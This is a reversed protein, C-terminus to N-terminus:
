ASDSVNPVKGMEAMVTATMTKILDSPILRLTKEDIPLPKDDEDSINWSKIIQLLGNIVAESEGTQMAEAVSIPISVNGEFEIGQYLGNLKFKQTKIPIQSLKM